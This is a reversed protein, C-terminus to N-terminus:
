ARPESGDPPVPKAPDPLVPKPPESPVPKSPDPVAAKPPESPVPKPLNPLAAKPPDRLVSKPLDPLFSKRSASAFPDETRLAEYPKLDPDEWADHQKPTAPLSPRRGVSLVPPRPVAPPPVAAAPPASRPKPQRRPEGRGRLRGARVAWGVPLGVAATWGAAALGVQWGVPGFRALANVGLPGGAAEALGALVMGCVASAVLVAGGTRGASWAGDRGRERDASAARAVFWGVTVGAAVPVAGVAWRLPGDGAEPVAALLPFPPLFAPPRVTSLPAMVHGAGLVFGPGLGYAAGWVAANPVLAAALLLVAWRGSWGQALQLFALQATDGHRVLSVGVLLAGGGVLVTSGALAARLSDGLRLRGDRDVAGLTVVQRVGEPLWELARRVSHPLRECPRGHATWVGLGAAGAVVLPVYWAAGAWSPRLTGGSAYLAAVAGVGLYGAVVGTWATRAGVPPADEGAAEVSERDTADRATRYVLWMPLVALLLPTVGVPAPLGSLTETRILTVGHALLWLAAAVRLAGGAGTAPYPSSIWLVIALLAFSGLGAVAALAGGLLADGLGPSRERLGTLLSPIPTRRDTWQTM